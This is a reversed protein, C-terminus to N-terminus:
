LRRIGRLGGSIEARPITGGNKKELILVFSCREIGVKTTESSM